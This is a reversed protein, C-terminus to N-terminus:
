TAPLVSAGKVRAGLQILHQHLLRPEGTIETALGMRKKLASTVDATSNEVPNNTQPSITKRLTLGPNLLANNM